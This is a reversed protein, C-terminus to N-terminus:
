GLTAGSFSFASEISLREGRKAPRGRKRTPKPPLDYLIDDLTISCTGDLRTGTEFSKLTLATIKMM